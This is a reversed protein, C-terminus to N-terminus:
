SAPPPEIVARGITNADTGFWISRTGPHYVMHRVTGGGSKAIPTVSFFRETSPDFGVLRNPQPGTEVFWLRDSADVTMAYPLSQAGAPAAWERVQGTAPDLRGLYGRAYDVYWVRDDSTIAIRRDRTRAEPLTYEKLAMTAPDIMGIKNTGFENFWVKGRSDVSIGYPRANPTELRVLQIRGTKPDLRGVVGSQQATFWAIGSKDFTMTHPDRVAPDPMPFRQIQGDAPNLRGIMGNRNGTYWIMDDPGVVVNHPHTGEDIEFRRFQGARPELYAVYNGQQGVFWVRGQKDLFPDRPRTGAWPVTWETIPVTDPGQAPLATALLPLASLLTLSRFM